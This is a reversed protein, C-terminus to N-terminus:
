ICIKTATQLLGLSALRERVVNYQFLHACRTMHKSAEVTVDPLLEMFSVLGGMLLERLFLFM